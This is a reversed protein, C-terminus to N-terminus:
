ELIMNVVSVADAVNVEGDENVDGKQYIMNTPENGNLPYIHRFDNWLDDTKYNELSNAPVYLNGIQTMIYFTNNTIQPVEKSYCYVNKIECSSFAANGIVKVHNGITLSTLNRCGDFAYKEIENVSNPIVISALSSCTGFCRNPIKKINNPLTASELNYCCSFANGQITTVSNPIVISTLAKCREFAYYGITTM